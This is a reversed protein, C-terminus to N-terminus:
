ENAHLCVCSCVCVCVHVCACARVCARMCMCACVHKFLGCAHQLMLFHVYVTISYESSFGGWVPM